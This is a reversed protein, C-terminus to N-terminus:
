LSEDQPPVFSIFILCCVNSNVKLILGMKGETKRVEFGVRCGEM